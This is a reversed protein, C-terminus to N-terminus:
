NYDKRMSRDAENEAYGAEYARLEDPRMDKEEILTSDGSSTYAYSDGTFM